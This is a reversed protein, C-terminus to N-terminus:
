PDDARRFEDIAVVYEAAVPVEAPVVGRVVEPIGPLGVAASVEVVVQAGPTLCPDAECSLRLAQAGDVTVGQDAFALGVSARARAVGASWTEARAIIRGAERAAGEAAFVAGQVQGLTLVLYVLPVLLLIAVGLFEVVASGSDVPRGSGTIRRRAAILRRRAIVAPRSLAAALGGRAPPLVRASEARAAPRWVSRCGRAEATGDARRM